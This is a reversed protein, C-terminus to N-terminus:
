YTEVIEISKARMKRLWELDPKYRNLDNQVDTIAIEVEENFYEQHERYIEQHHILQILMLLLKILETNPTM